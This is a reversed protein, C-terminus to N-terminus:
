ATLDVPVAFHASRDFTAAVVRGTRLLVRNRATDIVAADEDPPFVTSRRVVVQGTGYLWGVGPAAAVGEPPTGPYGADAVVLNGVRTTILNGERTLDHGLFQQALRGTHLYAQQGRLAHGLAEELLGLALKPAAPTGANLVEPGIVLALNREDDPIDGADAAARTLDGAWLERAIAYSETADLARRLEEDRAVRDYGFTTDCPHEILLEWPEYDVTPTPGDPLDAYEADSCRTFAKYGGPTEPAYTLGREWGTEGDVNTVAARILSHPPITARPAVVVTRV